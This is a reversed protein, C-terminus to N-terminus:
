RSRSSKLLLNWSEGFKYALHQEIDEKDIFNSFPVLLETRLDEAILSFKEDIDEIDKYKDKIKILKDSFESVWITNIVRGCKICFNKKPAVGCNECFFSETPVTGDPRKFVFMTNKMERHLCEECIWENSGKDQIPSYFINKIECCKNCIGERDESDEILCNECLLVEVNNGNKDKYWVKNLIDEKCNPCKM